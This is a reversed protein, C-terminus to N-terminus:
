PTILGFSAIRVPGLKSRSTPPLRGAAQLTFHHQLVRVPVGAAIRQLRTRSWESHVIIGEAGRALRQNLPFELPRAAIAPSSGRALTEAAERRAAAGNCAAVEDLYIRMDARERALGLFFDQLAFDHFVVLGSHQRMADFIGAHYRHDNGMQYLVADFRALRTLAAPDKQYDCVKFQSILEGNLPRFGDVFLTIDAGNALHPLLEESYDAIGSRQPGFPSFYALKM